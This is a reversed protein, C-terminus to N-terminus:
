AVLGLIITNVTLTNTVEMNSSTLEFNSLFIIFSCTNFSIAGKAAMGLTGLADLDM